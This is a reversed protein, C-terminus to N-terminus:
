ARVPPASRIYEAESDLLEDEVLDWELGDAFRCRYALPIGDEARQDRTTGEADEGPRLSLVMVPQHSRYWIEADASAPSEWCRYEFFVIEGADRLDRIM